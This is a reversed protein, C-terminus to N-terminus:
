LRGNDILRTAGVFVALAMHSGARVRRLPELSEPDFFEVYELRAAPRAAIFRTIRRKLASASWGTRSRTVLKRAMAISQWVVTAQRREESSLYQNRSSLAVGDPARVTRSVIIRVPFNLDRVMRRVVAAQQFDKAGFVAVEPGVISFLKAVVTTVGKFHGPRAAGEMSRSLKEEIVFTSFRQEKEGRYMEHDTPAFLLDVGAERCIKKDQALDRPYKKFDEGPGFQAPNVYISVVVKGAKGVARQARRILAVHGEHLYGMTPVFGLRIGRQRWIKSQRQMAAVTSVLRM